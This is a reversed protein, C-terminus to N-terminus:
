LIKIKSGSDNYMSVIFYSSIWGEKALDHFFVRCAICFNLCINNLYRCTSSNLLRNAIQTETLVKNHTYIRFVIIFDWSYGNAQRFTDDRLNNRRSKLAVLIREKLVRFNNNYSRIFIHVPTCLVALYRKWYHSFLIIGYLSALFLLSIGVVTLIDAIVGSTGTFNEKAM